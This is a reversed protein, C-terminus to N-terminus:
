VGAPAPSPSPLVHPLLAQCGCPIPSSRGLRPEERGVGQEGTRPDTSDLDPPPPCLKARDMVWLLKSTGELPSTFAQSRQTRDVSTYRLLSEKLLLEKLKNEVPGPPSPASGQLTGAGPGQGFGGRATQLAPSGSQGPVPAM